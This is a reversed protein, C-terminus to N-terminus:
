VGQPIAQETWYNENAVDGYEYVIVSAAVFDSPLTIPYGYISPFELIVDGTKLKKIPRDLRADEDGELTITYVNGFRKVTAM